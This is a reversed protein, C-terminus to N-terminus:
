QHSRQSQTDGGPLLACLLEFLPQYLHQSAADFGAEELAAFQPWRDGLQPYRERLAVSFAEGEEYRQRLTERVNDDGQGALWELSLEALAPLPEAWANRYCALYHSLVARAQQASMAPLSLWRDEFLGHAVVPKDSGAAALLQELHLLYLRHPKGLHTPRGNRDAKLTGYVGAELRWLELHDGHDVVNDLRGSIRTTGDSFDLSLTVFEPLAAIAESWRQWQQEIAPLQHTLLAEGFGLAPLRGAHQLRAASAALPQGALLADLLDRKFYHQTLGDFGFPEADPALEEPAVARAGLREKLCVSFPERLLTKLSPLAIEVPPPAMGSPAEAATHHPQQQWQDDYSFLAPCQADTFYKLSFPQLPHQEYLHAELRQRQTQEDCQEDGTLCWGQAICDLLESVLVSPPRSLNSRQDHGVYSIVLKNRAALLADLMLYRDDDRRSRDGGRPYAAMLDFDLDVRPRPYEGDNMGLLYIHSFPIARMPMLTAFNVRGALFRPSLGSEDLQAAIAERVVSLPLQGAFAAADCSDSWRAVADLLRGVSDHEADSDALVLQGVLAEIRESWQSVTRPEILERAAQELTDVLQLLRGALAADLGSVEDYPEVDDFGAGSAPLENGMAYGLLMRRAGFRWSNAALAPLKLQARHAESLGWRIGSQEVWRTLLALDSTAIGFRRRLAPIDLWDLMEGITVRREPLDLLELLTALLPDTRSARRDTITFPIYRPDSSDYRGFVSEIFPAYRDIDPVQVIVDRPKLEPDETFAALLKDNLMEVERLASYATVLQVSHDDQAVCRKGEDEVHELPHRLDLVDQQLQQLLSPTENPTIWDRFIDAESDQPSHQEIDYLAQIFDRGQAGWGSLLPNARLHLETPDLGSLEPREPHRRAARAQQRLAERESVVDGWYFRCPNTLLLIVDIHRSLGHLAEIVALPLSSIGFVFLRPPLGAPAQELQELRALFRQQLAARQLPQENADAAALLRQWLAPQWSQTSPLELQPASEGASWRAMWDPRYVLYQDYLAALCEALQYLHRADPPTDDAPTTPAASSDGSPALREDHLYDALPAFEPEDLVEPLLAMLRWVLAKREFPSRQPIADGLVARYAKWIFSSPLEFELAAAVGSREAIELKLWQGMGASQVLFTEASLPPLPHREALSLALDRLDEIHNAHIVSFM